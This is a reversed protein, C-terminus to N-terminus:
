SMQLAFRELLTYRAAAQGLESMYLAFENVRTQGFMQKALDQVGAALERSGRRARIRGLTLHPVFRRQERAFGLSSLAEDVSAAARGLRGADNVQVALVRPAAPRPLVVVPGFSLTFSSVEGLTKALSVRLAVLQEASIEGLFKLTVHWGEPRTWSVGAGATEANRKLQELVVKVADKTDEGVSMAVFCRM